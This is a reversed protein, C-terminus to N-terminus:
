LRLLGRRHAPAEVNQLLFSARLPFALPCNLAWEMVSAHGPFCAHSLPKECAFHQWSPAPLSCTCPLAFYRLADLLREEDSPDRKGLIQAGYGALSADVDAESELDYPADEYVLGDAAAATVDPPLCM